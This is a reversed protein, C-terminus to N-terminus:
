RELNKYVKLRCFEKIKERMWKKLEILDITNLLQKPFGAFSSHTRGAKYEFVNKQVLMATLQEVDKVWDTM